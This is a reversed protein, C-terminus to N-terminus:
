WNQSTFYVIVRIILATIAAIGVIAVLAPWIAELVKVACYLAVVAGLISFCWSTLRDVFRGPENPSM